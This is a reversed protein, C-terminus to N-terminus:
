LPLLHPLRISGIMREHLEQFSIVTKQLITESPASQFFIHFLMGRVHSVSNLNSITIHYLSLFSVKSM